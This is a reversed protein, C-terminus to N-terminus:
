SSLIGLAKARAVADKRNHVSLKGYINRTHSKVTPLSIFLQQAIEPNSLKDALLQDVYHPTIRRNTAQRLLHTMPKGEDLFVRAYGEPEALQLARQLTELANDTDDLARLALARLATIEIVTGLRGAAQAPSLLADLLILAESPRDQALLVRALTLDEFERLYETEGFREYDRAWRVALELKNQALWIRAQYATILASMRTIEFGQAIQVAQQIAALARDTNGRAQRIRALLAHGTGFSDTTGSSGLLDLSKSVHHEATSLDNQEYMIKSLELGAFGAMSTPVGDVHAMEMAEQCTQFAQHLQGQAIQVEALNCVLPVAIFGLGAARAAAIAQSFARRAESMNGTRFHVLGLVSSVRMQAMTDNDPVHTLAQHAFKIAQQVDGRVAAYSARDALVLGLMNEADPITSNTYLVGELEQLIRETNERQGALYLVRSAFLRLRPRARVIDDPLLNLWELFMAVTISSWTTAKLIAREIVDAALDFDPIALAHHIAESPLANQEYWTAARHHLEAVQDPVTEQLRTRLLEAFLRHYRYWRREDDLPAVFLNTRQLHELIQRSSAFVSTDQTPQNRLVDCLSGCMRELISTRLLFDYVPEPQLKLVEDTLYDLIFHHQGSFSNILHPVSDTGSNAIRSQLAFAAMQLGTIWGETHADLATVESTKLNLGMSQNLFATAEEITFRLDSQRIETVQGRGRLRSLPLPLDQRSAIVLHMQPPQRELLFSVVEHIGPETITHYDDLM